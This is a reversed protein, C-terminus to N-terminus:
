NLTLRALMVGTDDDSPGLHFGMSEVLSLMPENERLIFGYIGELGRASCWAILQELLYRGLGFRRIEGGVIIAFEADQGDDDIVIRAVAAIRAEAPPKAEVLVIAFEREPDVRCLREAYGASLETLPHLFRMRIEQPTLTLFGKQLMAADSAQIPRM